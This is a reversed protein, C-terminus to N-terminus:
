AWEAVADEPLAAPLGFPGRLSAAPLPPLAGTLTVDSMRQPRDRTEIVHSQPTAIAFPTLARMEMCPLRSSAIIRMRVRSTDSM